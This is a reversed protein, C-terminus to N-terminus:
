ERQGAELVNEYVLRHLSMRGGREGEVDVDVDMDM